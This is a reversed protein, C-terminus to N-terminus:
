ATQDNIKRVLNIWACMLLDPENIAIWHECNDYGQRAYFGPYKHWDCRFMAQLPAGDSAWIVFGSYPLGRLFPVGRVDARHCQSPLFATLREVRGILRGVAPAVASGPEFLGPPDVPRSRPRRAM